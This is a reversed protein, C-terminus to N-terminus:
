TEMNGLYTCLNVSFTRMGGFQSDHTDDISGIGEEHIWNMEYGQDSCHDYYSLRVEWSQMIWGSGIKGPARRADLIIKDSSADGHPDHPDRRSVVTVINSAHLGRPTGKTNRSKVGSKNGTGRGYRDTSSLIEKVLARLVPIWAATITVSSEVVFWIVLTIGSAEVRILYRILNIIRLLTIFNSSFTGVRLLPLYVGRYCYHWCM